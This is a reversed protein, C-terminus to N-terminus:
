VKDQLHFLHHQHQQIAVEYHLELKHFLQQQTCNKIQNYNTPIHTKGANGRSNVDANEDDVFCPRSM